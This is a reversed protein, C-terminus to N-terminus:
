TSLIPSMKLSCACLDHAADDGRVVKRSNEEPRYDTVRYYIFEFPYDRSLELEGLLREARDVQEMRRGRPAFRVQHDRLEQILHVRYEQHM